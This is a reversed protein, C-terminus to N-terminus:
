IVLKRFKREIQCIDCVGGRQVLMDEHSLSICKVQPKVNIIMMFFIKERCYSRRSWPTARFCSCKVWMYWGGFTNQMRQMMIMLPVSLSM